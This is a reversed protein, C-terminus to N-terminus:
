GRFETGGEVEKGKHKGPKPFAPNKVIPSSHSLSEMYLDRALRLDASKINKQQQVSVRRVLEDIWSPICHTKKQSVKQPPMNKAKRKTKDLLCLFLLQPLNMIAHTPEVHNYRYVCDRM